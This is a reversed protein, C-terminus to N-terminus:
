IVGSGYLSWSIMLKIVRVITFAAFPTPLGALWNAYLSRYAAITVNIGSVILSTTIRCTDETMNQDAM